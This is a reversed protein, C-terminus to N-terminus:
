RRRRRRNAAHAKKLNRLAITRRQAKTLPRRRSKAAKRPRSRTSAM